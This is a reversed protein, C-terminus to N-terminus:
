QYVDCDTNYILLSRAAGTIADREATTMRPILVGRQNDVVDLRASPDPTATGIGVSQGLLLGLTGMLVGTLM